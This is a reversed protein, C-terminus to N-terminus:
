MFDEAKAGPFKVITEGVKTGTLKVSKFGVPPRGALILKEIKSDTLNIYGDSKLAGKVTLKTAELAGTVILSHTVTVNDLKAYGVIVLKDFTENKIESYGNVYKIDHKVFEGDGKSEDDSGADEAKPKKARPGAGGLFGILGEKQKFLLFGVGLLVAVAVLVLLLILYWEM